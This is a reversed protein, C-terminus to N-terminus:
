LDIKRAYEGLVPVDKQKGSLAYAWSYIWALIVLIRVGLAILWGIVPIWGVLTAVASAVVAVIFVVLSQKAYFMTYKDKRWALLAIIFGLISFFTTIFARTTKKSM